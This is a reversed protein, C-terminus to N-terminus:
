KKGSRNEWVSRPPCGAAIWDELERRRWRVLGGIRVPRPVQGCAMRKYWATRSMACVRAAGNADFLMTEDSEVAAKDMEKTM